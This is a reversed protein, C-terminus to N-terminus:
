NSLLEHLLKLNDWQVCAAAISKCLVTVWKQQQIMKLKVLLQTEAEALQASTMNKFSLMETSLNTLVNNVEWVTLSRM